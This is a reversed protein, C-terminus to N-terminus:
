MCCKHSMLPLYDMQLMHIRHMPEICISYMKIYPFQTGLVKPYTPTPIESVIGKPYWFLATWSAYIYIHIYNIYRIHIYHINLTYICHIHLTYTDWSALTKNEVSSLYVINIICEKTPHHSLETPKCGLRVVHTWYWSRAITTQGGCTCLPM